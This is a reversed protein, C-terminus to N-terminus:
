TFRLISYVTTSQLLSKWLTKSGGQLLQWFEHTSGFWCTGLSRQDGYGHIQILEVCLILHVWWYNVSYQGYLQQVTDLKDYYQAKDSPPFDYPLWRFKIQNTDSSAQCGQLIQHLRHRNIPNADCGSHSRAQHPRPRVQIPIKHGTNDASWM